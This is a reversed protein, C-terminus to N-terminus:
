PRIRWHAHAKGSQGVRRAPHLQSVLVNQARVFGVDTDEVEQKEHCVESHTKGDDGTSFTGVNSFKPLSAHQLKASVSQYGTTELIGHLKLALAAQAATRVWSLNGPLGYREFSNRTEDAQGSDMIYNVNSNSKQKNEVIRKASQVGSPSAQLPLM